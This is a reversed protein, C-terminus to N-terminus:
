FVRLAIILLYNLVLVSESRHNLLYNLVLVSESRHNLLSVSMNYTKEQMPSNRAGPSTQHAGAATSCGPREHNQHSSRENGMIGWPPAAACLPGKLIGGSTHLCAPVPDVNWLLIQVSGAHSILLLSYVNVENLLHQEFCSHVTYSIILYIVDYFLTKVIMYWNLIKVAIKDWILTWSSTFFILSFMFYHFTEFWNIPYM